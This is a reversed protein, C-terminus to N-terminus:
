KYNISKMIQTIREVTDAYTLKKRIESGGKISKTFWQAHTKIEAYKLCDYKEALELYEFFENIKQKLTQKPLLKGTKLYHNIRRFIYPEGIAARGIMLFDAKTQELCKEASLEDFVDGNAIVPISVTEKVRRIIEWDAKGSYKQAVNRGHVTIASAGAKEILKAVELANIHNRDLGTRIKATIPKKVKKVLASIIEYIKKPRKLLASGAGQQMVSYDPCGLNIDVIDCDLKDAAKVLIETNQAFLQMAVPKEQNITILKGLTVKNNRVMANANIMESFVLGCSYKKCLLRFPLSTVKSMPALVLKDKIKVKGIEM